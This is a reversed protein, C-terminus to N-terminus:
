RAVAAVVFQLMVADNTSLRTDETLDVDFANMFNNGSVDELLPDMSVRYNGSNWPLDPIFKLVHDMELDMKGNIPNGFADCITVYKFVLARDMARGFRVVIPARSAAPPAIVDIDDVTLRSRVPAVVKFKKMVSRQLNQGHVDSWMSDIMLSYEEGDRLSPGMELNAKLGRKIRGPDFLITFRTRSVDWLEQDVILFSKRIRAGKSDYLSVREYAEGPMMPGSFCVYMRLMNEPLSSSEPYVAEVSTVLVNEGPIQFSFHTKDPLSLKKGVIETLPASLLVAHYTAGASFPYLPKFSFGEATVSYEGTVAQKLEKRFAEETYVSFVERWREGSLNSPLEHIGPGQSNNTEFFGIGTVYVVGDVFNVRPSSQGAADPALCVLIVMAIVSYKM